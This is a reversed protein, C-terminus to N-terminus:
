YLAPKRVSLLSESTKKRCGSLLDMAHKKGALANKHNVHNERKKYCSHNCVCSM